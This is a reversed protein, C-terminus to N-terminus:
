YAATKQELNIVQVRRNEPAFPNKTNKLSDKGYGVTVLDRAPIGVKEVLARKVAEARRQSLKQNYSVGGRADTHGAVVFRSGKLASSTLARGLAIVTPMAKERVEASGLDFYIELDISPKDKTVVTVEQREETSLSRETPLSDIIRQQEPSTQRPSASLGRTLSEKPALANIIQITLDPEEAHVLKSVTVLSLVAYLAACSFRLGRNKIAVKGEKKQVHPSNFRAL